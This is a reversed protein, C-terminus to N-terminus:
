LAGRAGGPGGALVGRHGGAEAGQVVLGDAGAALAIEAEAPSTVTVWAEGMRALEAGAPCGFTFSVVDPREREMLALKAAWDDDDFRPEGLGRTYGAYASPDAPEGPVFLNVGFPRETLERLAGIREELAGPTLYGGALFGLGGGNCVAAALEPTSPGGALPALVIPVELRELVSM